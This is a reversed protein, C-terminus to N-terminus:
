RIVGVETGMVWGGGSGWIGKWGLGTEWIGHGEAEVGISWGGWVAGGDLIGVLGKNVETGGM